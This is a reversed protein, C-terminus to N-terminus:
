MIQMCAHITSFSSCLKISTRVFIFPMLLNRTKLVLANIINTLKVNSYDYIHDESFFFWKELM